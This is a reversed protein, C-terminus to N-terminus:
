VMMEYIDKWNKVIPIDPNDHNMNHGHEMLISRLGLKYGVEANEVKDEVWVVGTDKYRALAEDKDAGIELCQLFAIATGFLKELNRRRLEVAYPNTSLSTIVGFVYGLEEHMKRIYHVADRLPPIFGISASENFFRTLEKAEEYSVDYRLSTSYVMNNSSTYGRDNMWVDFAYEWNLLVGDCDTLILRDYM